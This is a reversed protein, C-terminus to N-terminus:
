PGAVTTIWQTLTEIYGPVLRPWRFGQRSDSVSFLAHDAEPFMRITIDKGQARLRELIAASEMSPMEADREGFLWLSPLSMRQLLPLPDFDLITRYFRRFPAGAPAAQTIGLSAFWPESRARELSRELEEIGRWTRTVEDNLRLIARAKEIENV